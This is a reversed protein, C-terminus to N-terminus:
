RDILVVAFFCALLCADFVFVCALLLCSLFLYDALSQRHVTCLGRVGPPRSADSSDKHSGIYSSQALGASRGSMARCAALPRRNAYGM